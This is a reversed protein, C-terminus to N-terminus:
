KQNNGLAGAMLASQVTQGLSEALPWVQEIDGLPEIPIQINVAVWPVRRGQWQAIQDAWFWTSIDPNGGKPVAYWQLVAYTQQQNRGQLYNAEVKANQTPNDKSGVTFRVRRNQDTKWRWFGKIDVWEVQPQDKPGNQPFLAVLAQTNKDRQINQFLWKHGSVERVDKSVTQWGPLTLGTKRIEQLQKLSAVPPPQQWRWRGNLYSPVAGLGISLLLFLLLILKSIKTNQLLPIAGDKSFKTFFSNM